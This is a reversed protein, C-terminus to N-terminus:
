EKALWHNGAVLVKETEDLLEFIEPELQRPDPEQRLAEELRRCCQQLQPVGCYACSGHLKHVQHLINQHSEPLLPGNLAQQVGPLSNLLM